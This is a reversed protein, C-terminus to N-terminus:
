LHALEVFSVPENCTYDDVWLGKNHAVLAPVLLVTGEEAILNVQNGVERKLIKAKQECEKLTRRAQTIETELLYLEVIKASLNDDM